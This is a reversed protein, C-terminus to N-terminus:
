RHMGHKLRQISFGTLGQNFPLHRPMEAAFSGIHADSVGSVMAVALLMTLPDIWSWSSTVITAQVVSAMLRMQKRM